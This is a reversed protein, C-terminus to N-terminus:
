RSHAALHRSSRSRRGTASGSPSKGPEAGGPSLKDTFRDESTVWHRVFVGVPETARSTVTDEVVAVGDRLSLRRPLSYLRGEARVTLAGKSRAVAPQWGVEAQGRLGVPNWGIETGPYAFASVITMRARGNEVQLRGRADMALALDGRRLGTAPEVSTFPEEIDLRPALAFCLFLVLLIAQAM